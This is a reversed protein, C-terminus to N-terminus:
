ARISYLHGDTSGTYVVSAVSPTYYVNGSVSQAWVAVGALRALQTVGGDRGVYVFNGAVAPTGYLPVGAAYSWQETGSSAALAYVNGDYSAASVVGGAPASQERPPWASSGPWCAAGPRCPITTVPVTGLGPRSGPTL